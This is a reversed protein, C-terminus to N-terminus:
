NKYGTQGTYPNINPSTSYNDSVTSNPATRMHAEVVTGDSKIYTRVQVDDSNANLVKSEIEDRYQSSTVNETNYYPPPSYTNFDFPIPRKNLLTQIEIEEHATKNNEAIQQYYQNMISDSEKRRKASRINIDELQRDLNSTYSIPPQYTSESTLTVIPTKIKLRIPENNSNNCSNWILPIIFFLKKM